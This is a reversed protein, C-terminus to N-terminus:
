FNCFCRQDVGGTKKATCHFEEENNGDFIWTSELEFEDFQKLAEKIMTWEGEPNAPDRYSPDGVSVYYFHLLDLNSGFNNITDVHKMEFNLLCLSKLKPASQLLKELQDPDIDIYISLSV